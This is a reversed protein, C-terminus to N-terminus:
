SSNIWENQKESYQFCKEYKNIKREEDVLMLELLWHFFFYEFQIQAIFFFHFCISFCCFFFLRLSFFYCIYLSVFVFFSHMCSCSCYILSISEIKMRYHCACVSGLVCLAVSCGVHRIVWLPFLLLRCYCCCCCIVDNHICQLVIKLRYFRVRTGISQIHKNM